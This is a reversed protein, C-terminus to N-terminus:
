SDVSREGLRKELENLKWNLFGIEQAAQRNQRSLKSIVTSFQLLIMIMALFGAIFLATPPYAIGVSVAVQDWVNRTLALAVLLAATALWLLSYQEELRRQRVLEIIIVLLGLAGFVVSITLRDM